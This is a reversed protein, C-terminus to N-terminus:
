WQYWNTGDSYFHMILGDFSDSFSTVLTGGTGEVKDSGQVAVNLNHGSTALNLGQDKLIIVHGAGAASAL